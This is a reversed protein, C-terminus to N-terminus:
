AETEQQWAREAKFFDAFDSAMRANDVPQDLAAQAYALRPEPVADGRRNTKMRIKEGALYVDGSNPTELLNICRLFTSKGSGSAGLIAIVDGKQAEMSVGKIVEHAGFSKHLDDIRLAADTM